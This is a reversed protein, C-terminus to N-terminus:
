KKAKAREKERKLQQALKRNKKHEAKKKKAAKKAKDATTKDWTGTYIGSLIDDDVVAVSRGDITESLSYKVESQVGGEASQAAKGQEKAIVNEIGSERAM